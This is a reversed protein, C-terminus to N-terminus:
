FELIKRTVRRWRTARGTGVREVLGVSELEALDGLATRVSVEARQAYDASRFLEEPEFAALTTTMRQSLGPPQAGALPLVVRIGDEGTAEFLVEPNGAQQMAAIVRLTGTGWEEIYGALYLARAIYPNPPISPHRERLSAITLPSPLHGPNWVDLGDDDLRLQIPATSRYDRHAVANAVVERVADAPLEPLDERVVGERRPRVKINRMVFEVAAEIQRSLAGEISAAESSAGRVARARIVAQPVFRQPDRGFLLLAGLRVDDVSGLHLREILEGPQVEDGLEASRGRAQECFRIVEQPDLADVSLGPEIRREFGSSERLRDLLRREYEDRSMAVTAPGSRYFARGFALHPGDGPPVRIRLLRTGAHSPQDIDVYVRPDTGALVRQVLRELEGEGLKAGIVTGDDRVGVLIVGGGITAMAAVTEVLRGSDALTSKFEREASEGAAILEEISKPVATM